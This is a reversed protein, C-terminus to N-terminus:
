DVIKLLNTDAKWGMILREIGRKEINNKIGELMLLYFISNPKSHKFHKVFLKNLDYILVREKVTKDMRHIPFEFTLGNVKNLLNETHSGFLSKQQRGDDPCLFENFESFARLDKLSKELKRLADNGKIKAEYLKVARTTYFYNYFCKTIELHLKFNKPLSYREEFLEVKRQSYFELESKAGRKAPNASLDNKVRTISDIISSLKEHILGSRFESFENKTSFRKPLSKQNHFLSKHSKVFNQQNIFWLNVGHKRMKSYHKEELSDLLSLLEAVSGKNNFESLIIEKSIEVPIEFQFSQVFDDFDVKSPVAM